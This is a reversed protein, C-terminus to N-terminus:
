RPIAFIELLAAELRFAVLPMVGLILLYIANKDARSVKITAM